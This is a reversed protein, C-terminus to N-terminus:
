RKWQRVLVGSGIFPYGSINVDGTTAWLQSPDHPDFTIHSISLSAQDDFVPDWNIGGDATRYIGGQSVRDPHCGTSPASPLPISEAALIAQDKWPGPFIWDGTLDYLPKTTPFPQM